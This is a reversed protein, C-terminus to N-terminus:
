FQKKKKQKILPTFSFFNQTVLRQLMVGASQAETPCNKLEPKTTKSRLLKGCFWL